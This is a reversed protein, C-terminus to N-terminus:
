LAYWGCHREILAENAPHVLFCLSPDVQNRGNVTSGSRKLWKCATPDFSVSLDTRNLAENRPLAEQDVLCGWHYGNAGRDPWAEKTAITCPALEMKQEGLLRSAFFPEGGRAGSDTM